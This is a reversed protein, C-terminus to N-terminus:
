GGGLGEGLLASSMWPAKDGVGASAPYWVSVMLERSRTTEWYPDQRTDDVMHLSVAGVAYQGSPRPFTLQTRAPNSEGSAPNARGDVAGYTGILAVIATTIIRKM